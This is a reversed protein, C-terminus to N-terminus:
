RTKLAIERLLIRFLFSVSAIKDASRYRAPGNVGSLSAAGASANRSGNGVCPVHAPVQAHHFYQSRWLGGRLYNTTTSLITADTIGDGNIDHLIPSTLFSGSGALPSTWNACNKISKRRKWLLQALGLTTRVAYPLSEDDPDELFVSVIPPNRCRRGCGRGAHLRESIGLLIAAPMKPRLSPYRSPSNPGTNPVSAFRGLSKADTLIARDDTVNRLDYPKSLSQQQLESAAFSSAVSREM